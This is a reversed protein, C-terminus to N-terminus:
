YTYVDRLKHLAAIGDHNGAGTVPNIPRHIYYIYGDEGYRSSEDAFTAWTQLSANPLGNAKYSTVLFLPSPIATVFEMWPCGVMKFFEDKDKMKSPMTSFQKKM